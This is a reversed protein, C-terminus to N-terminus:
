KRRHNFHRSMYIVKKIEPLSTIERSDLGKFKQMNICEYLRRGCVSASTNGTTALVRVLDIRFCTNFFYRPRYLLFNFAKPSYIRNRTAKIAEENISRIEMCLSVSPRPLRTRTQECIKVSYILAINRNTM